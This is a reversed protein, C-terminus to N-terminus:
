IHVKPNADSPHLHLHSLNVCLWGGGRGESKCLVGATWKTHVGGGRGTTGDDQEDGESGIM